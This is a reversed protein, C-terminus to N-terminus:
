KLILDENDLIDFSLGWNKAMCRTAINLLIQSKLFFHLLIYYNMKAWSFFFKVILITLLILDVITQLIQKYHARILTKIVMKKLSDFALQCALIRDFLM